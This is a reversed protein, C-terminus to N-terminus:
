EYQRRQKTALRRKLTKLKRAKNDDNKYKLEGELIKIQSIMKEIKRQISMRKKSM